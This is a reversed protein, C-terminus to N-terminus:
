RGGFPSITLVRDDTLSSVQFTFSHNDSGTKWDMVEDPIEFYASFLGTQKAQLKLSPEVSTAGWHHSWRHYSVTEPRIM